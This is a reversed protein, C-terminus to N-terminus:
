SRAPLPYGPQPSVYSPRGGWYGPRAGWYGITTVPAAARRRAANRLPAVAPARGVLRANVYGYQTRCWEGSCAEVTVPFGAPLTGLLQYSTGPGGRVDAVGSTTVRSDAAAGPAYARGVPMPSATALGPTVYAATPAGTAAPAAFGQGAFGASLTDQIAPDPILPQADPPLVLRAPGRSLVYISVYGGEVRCWGDACGQVTVSSADPLSKVIEHDVGPGSRVNATGITTRTGTMSVTQGSATGAMVPAVAVPATFAPQTTGVLRGANVYGYQTRCWGSSCATADVPTGAPLQGILAYAPGPGARLEAISSATAPVAAATAIGVLGTGAFVLGARLLWSGVVRM